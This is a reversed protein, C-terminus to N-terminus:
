LFWYLDEKWIPRPKQSSKQPTLRISNRGLDAILGFGFQIEEIETRRMLIAVQLIVQFSSEFIAKLIKLEMARPPLEIMLCDYLLWFDGWCWADLSIETDLFKLKVNLWIAEFDIFTENEIM